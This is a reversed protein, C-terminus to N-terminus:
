ERCRLRLAVDARQQLDTSNIAVTNQALCVLLIRAADRSSRSLQSTNSMQDQQQFPIPVVPIAHGESERAALLPPLCAHQWRHGCLPM